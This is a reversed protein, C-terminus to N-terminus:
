LFTNPVISSHSFIWSYFTKFHFGHLHFRTSYAAPVLKTRELGPPGTVLNGPRHRWQEHHV